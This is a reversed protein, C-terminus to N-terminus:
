RGDRRRDREEGCATPFARDRVQPDRDVMGVSLGLEVGDDRPLARRFDDRLEKPLATEDLHAPKGALAGPSVLVAVLARARLDGREAHLEEATLAAGWGGVCRRCLSCNM